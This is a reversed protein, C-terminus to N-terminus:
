VEMSDSIIKETKLIARSTVRAVNGYSNIADAMEKMKPLVEKVRSEYKDKNTSHWTSLLNQAEEIGRIAEEIIKFQENISVGKEDLLEPNISINLDDM